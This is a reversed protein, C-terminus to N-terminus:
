KPTPTASTITGAAKEYWSDYVEAPANLATKTKVNGTYPDAISTFELEQAKPEAKETKTESSIKPRSFTNNFLFHRTAKVDGDFEFSLGIANPKTDVNEIVQGKEDVINGLIYAELDQPIQYISLKGTYGQNNSATYYIKDDAYVKVMDGEPDLEIESAGIWLKGPGYILGTGSDTITHWHVNKIGYNVKNEVVTETDAM